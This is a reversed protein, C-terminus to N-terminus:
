VHREWGKEARGMAKRIAEALSRDYGSYVVERKEWAGSQLRRDQHIGGHDFWHESLDCHWWVECKRTGEETDAYRDHWWIRMQRFPADALWRELRKM